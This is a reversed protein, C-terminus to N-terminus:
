SRTELQIFEPDDQLGDIFPRKDPLADALRYRLIQRTGRSAVYLYGDGGFAMGAPNKLGGAQPQIYSTVKENTLDCTVISENGRNGIYLIHGSILLHIPKDILGNAAIEGRYTATTSDFKKVCDADRDAIYLLGKAFLAERVVVLGNPVQKASACFTGPSLRDSTASKLAPPLPMPTAPQGEKSGPGFYRLTLSTDQSTVYLDGHTDFVINFPHKLGPNHVADYQVFVDRFVHQEDKDLKGDFRLIQSADQFANVVYLGGDPGFTFGRLERLGVGPPLSDSNLAKRLHQGDTSFVHINNLAGKPEGGHFTVHWEQKM